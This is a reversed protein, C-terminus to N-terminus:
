TFSLFSAIESSETSFREDVGGCVISAIRTCSTLVREKKRKNKEKKYLFNIYLHYSKLPYIHYSLQEKQYTTVRTQNGNKCAFRKKKRKKFDEITIVLFITKLVM